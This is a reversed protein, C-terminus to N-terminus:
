SKCIPKWGGYVARTREVEIRQLQISIWDERDRAGTHFNGSKLYKMDKLHTELEDLMDNIEPATASCNVSGEDMRRLVWQKVELIENQEKEICKDETWYRHPVAFLVSTVLAISFLGYTVDRARLIQSLRSPDRDLQGVIVVECFSRAFLSLTAVLMGCQYEGYYRDAGDPVSAMPYTYTGLLQLAMYAIEFGNRAKAILQIVRLDVVYLWIFTLALILCIHYVSFFLVLIKGGARIAYAETRLGWYRAIIKGIGCFVFVDSLIKFISFFSQALIYGYTVRAHRQHILTDIWHLVLYVALLILGCHLMRSEPWARERLRITSVTLIVVSVMVLLAVLGNWVTPATGPPVARTPVLWLGNLTAM